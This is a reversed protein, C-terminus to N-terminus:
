SAGGPCPSGYDRPHSYEYMCAYMCACMCAPREELVLHGTIELIVIEGPREVDIRVYAVADPRYAVHTHVHTHAHTYM